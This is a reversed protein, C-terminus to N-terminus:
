INNIYLSFISGIYKKFAGPKILDLKVDWDIPVKKGNVLIHNKSKEFELQYERDSLIRRFTM